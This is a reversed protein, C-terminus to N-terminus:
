DVVELMSYAPHSIAKKVTTLPDMKVKKTKKVDVMDDADEGKIDEAVVEEEVEDDEFQGNELFMKMQGQSYGSVLAVGMDEATVPKSAIDNSGVSYGYGGYEGARGGALNWFILKPMEYGAEEFNAKVREFSTTWRDAATEAADFQMDSFVFVQKVMDEPKLKKEVALPLILREFVAVFDTNMGWEAARVANVKAAFSRTDQKGGVKVVTPNASFTIFAGGFPPEVIEALLLALGIASDMPTTGDKFKPYTMSGSVDCVAISSEITGSDRLRQVLTNWQGEAVKSKAVALAGALPNKKDSPNYRSTPSNAVSSVLTSPLLIAGSIQKSGTTVKELYELFHTEDKKVFLTQYRHMALSPVREYKINAFTEAVIDREVVELIKRLPSVTMRRYEERAHRLYLERNDKPVDPCIDSADPYLIEAISSVIFTNKDHFEAFTPAWKAALSIKKLDAKNNSSLYQKDEKLQTAFLRAVAIHLVRYFPDEEFKKLVRDHQEKKAKERLEKAAKPDWERKRKAKKSQEPHTDLISSPNSNAKLQDHASLVVLNLLDKWYGHSVGYKVDHSKESAVPEGKVKEFGEEAEGAEVMVMDDDEDKLAKEGDVAKKEASKDEEKKVKKQIVPRTLWRLNAVLTQPHKEALWGFARYTVFRSSKGLHISRANFIIKVTSLPDEEWAADLVEVLRDASISDELEYFLDVLASKTSIHAVDANETLMKNDRELEAESYQRSSSNLVADMFASKPEPGVAAVSADKSEADVPKTERTRDPLDDSLGTPASPPALQAKVYAQFEYEPLFLAECPPLFVPFTSKLISHTAKKEVNDSTAKENTVTDNSAM